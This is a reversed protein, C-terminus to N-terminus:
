WLPTASLRWLGLATAAICAFLLWLPGPAFIPGLGFFRRPPQTRPTM